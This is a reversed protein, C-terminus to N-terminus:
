FSFMTFSLLLALSTRVKMAMEVLELGRQTPTYESPPPARRQGDLPDLKVKALDVVPRM